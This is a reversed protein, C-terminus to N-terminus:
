IVSKFRASKTHRQRRHKRSKRGAKCSFMPESINIYIYYERTLLEERREQTQPYM